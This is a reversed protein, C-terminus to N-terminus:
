RRPRGAPVPRIAQGVTLAARRHPLPALYRPGAGAPGRGTRRVAAAVWAGTRRRRDTAVTRMSTSVATGIGVNRDLLMPFSVVSIALVLAAFLFGVGIGIAIMAWGAGTTFVESLFAAVSPPPEPGLTFVYIVQAVVLWLLFLAILLLGLLMIPGISPSRLVNFADLWSVNSGQARRRSMENLGIAAFPGVLAFGSALPFILPVLGYGSAL